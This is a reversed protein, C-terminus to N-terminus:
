FDTRLTIGYTMPQNPYGSYIGPSATTLFASILSEHDTLNRGWLMLSWGDDTGGIGVSANLM